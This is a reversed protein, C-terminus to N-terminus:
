QCGVEFASQVASAAGCHNCVDARVYCLHFLCDGRKSKYLFHASDRGIRFHSFHRLRLHKEASVFTLYARSEGKWTVFYLGWM